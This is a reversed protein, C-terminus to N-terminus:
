GDKFRKKIAEGYTTHFKSVLRPIFKKWWAARIWFKNACGPRFGLIHPPVNPVIDWGNIVRTGNIPLSRFQDRYEKIGVSPAGFTVCSCKIGLNKALHRACLEALAGGRSHGTIYIDKDTSNIHYKDILRTICPKFFKWAEYFGDHIIGKGWKGEKLNKKLYEDKELPFVNFNSIWGKLNNTGKFSIIIHDEYIAIYGYDINNAFPVFEEAEKLLPNNKKSTPSSYALDSHKWTYPIPKETLM